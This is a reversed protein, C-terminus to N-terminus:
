NFCKEIAGAMTNSIYDEVENESTVAIFAEIVDGGEALLLRDWHEAIIRALGMVDEETYDFKEVDLNRREWGLSDLYGIPDSCFEDAESQFIDSAISYLRKAKENEM